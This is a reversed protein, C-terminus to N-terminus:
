NNIIRCRVLYVESNDNLFLAGGINAKNESIDSDFIM